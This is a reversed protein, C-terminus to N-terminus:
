LLLLTILLKTDKVGKHMLISLGVICGFTLLTYLKVGPLHEFCQNHRREPFNMFVKEDIKLLLLTNLYLWFWGSSTLWLSSM